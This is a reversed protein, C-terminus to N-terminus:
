VEEEGLSLVSIYRRSDREFEVSLKEAQTVYENEVYEDTNTM